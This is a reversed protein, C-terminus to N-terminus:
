HHNTQCRIQRCKLTRRSLYIMWLNSCVKVTGPSPLGSKIKLELLHCGALPLKLTLRIEFHGKLVVVPLNWYNATSHWNLTEAPSGGSWRNWGLPVKVLLCQRMM